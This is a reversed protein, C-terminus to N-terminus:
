CLGNLMDTGTLIASVPLRLKSGASENKYERKDCPKLVYREFIAVWPLGIGFIYKVKHQEAM